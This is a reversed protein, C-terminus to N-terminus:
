KKIFKKGNIINIGKAPSSLRMGRIDYIREDGSTDDRSIDWINTVTFDPFVFMKVKSGEALPIYAKGAPITPKDSRTTYFGTRYPGKYPENTGSKTLQTLVYVRQPLTTQVTVGKLMNTKTDINDYRSEYITLTAGPNGHLVYGEGEKMVDGDIPEIRAENNYDAYVVKNATFGRLLQADFGVPTYTSFGEDNLKVTTTQLPMLAFWSCPSIAGDNGATLYKGDPQQGGLVIKGTAPDITFFKEPQRGGLDYNNGSIGKEGSKTMIFFGPEPSEYFDIGASGLGAGDFPAPRNEKLRYKLEIEQCDGQDYKIIGIVGATMWLSKDFSDESRFISTNEGFDSGTLAAPKADAAVGDLHSRRIFNGGSESRVVYPIDTFAVLQMPNTSWHINGVVNRLELYKLYEERVKAKADDSPSQEYAEIASKLPRATAATPTLVYKGAVAVHKKAMPLTIDTFGAGNYDYAYAGIITSPEAWRGRAVGFAQPYQALRTYTSKDKLSFLSAKNDIIWKGYGKTNQENAAKSQVEKDFFLRFFHDNAAQGFPKLDNGAANLKCVSATQFYQKNYSLTTNRAYAGSATYVLGNEAYGDAAGDTAPRFLVLPMRTARNVVLYGNTDDGVFCWLQSDDGTVTYHRIRLRSLPKTIHGPLYKSYDVDVRVTLPTHHRGVVLIYWKAKAVVSEPLLGTSQFANM